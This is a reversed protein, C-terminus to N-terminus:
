CVTILVSDLINSIDIMVYKYKEMLWSLKSIEMVPITQIVGDM